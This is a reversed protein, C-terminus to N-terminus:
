PHQVVRSDMMFRSLDRQLDNETYNVSRLGCVCVNSQVSVCACLDEMWM